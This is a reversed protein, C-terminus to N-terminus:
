PAPEARTATWTAGASATVVCAIALWGMLPLLEGLIVMAAIAAAAPEVSMLIGFLGPKMTRLAYLEFGYPIVSSLLGVLLAIGLVHADVGKLAGDAFTIPSLLVVAIVGAVVLGDLGEWHAGTARSSWIYGAWAAGALAAFGVGALNVHNPLGGLLAVGLGALGAWVLDRRRRSTALAVGLPGLFEVTVALGLPIRDIAQYFSWNMFGLTGGYGAVVKWDAWSRGRLSPRVWPLLLLTGLLLRLWTMTTPTVQDFIDKALSAGIQVSGIAALVLWVARSDHGREPTSHTPDPM